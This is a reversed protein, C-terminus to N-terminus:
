VVKDNVIEDFTMKIMEGSQILNELYGRFADAVSKTLRIQQLSNLDNTPCSCFGDYLQRDIFSWADIFVQNNLINKALNARRESERVDSETIQDNM